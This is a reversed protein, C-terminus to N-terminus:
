EAITVKQRRFAELPIQVSRCAGSASLKVRSYDGRTEPPRPAQAGCSHLSEGDGTREPRRLRLEASALEDQGEARRGDASTARQSDESRWATMRIRDDRCARLASSGSCIRKAEIIRLEAHESECARGAIALYIRPRKEYVTM